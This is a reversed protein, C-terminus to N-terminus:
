LLFSLLLTLGAAIIVLLTAKATDAWIAIKAASTDEALREVLWEAIGKRTWYKRPSPPPLVDVPPADDDAM